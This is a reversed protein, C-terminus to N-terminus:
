AHRERRLGHPAGLAGMGCTRVFDALYSALEEANEYTRFHAADLSLRRLADPIVGEARSLVLVRQGGGIAVGCEVLTFSSVEVPQVLAYARSAKLHRFSLVDASLPTAMPPERREDATCYTSWQGQERFAALASVLVGREREFHAHDVFGRIPFSVFLDYKHRAAHLEWSRALRGRLTEWLGDFRGMLLESPMRESAPLRENLDIALKRVDERGLATAQFHSLPGTFEHKPLEHILLPCILADDLHKGIAGAEFNLWPSDINDRTICVIACDCSDLETRLVRLWDAGARIDETSLFTEVCSGFLLPFWHCLDLAVRSSLDGSWSIFVKM